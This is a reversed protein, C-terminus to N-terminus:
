VQSPPSLTEALLLSLHFQVASDQVIKPRVQRLIQDCIPHHDCCDSRWAHCGLLATRKGSPRESVLASSLRITQSDPRSFLTSPRDTSINIPIICRGYRYSLHMLSTFFNYSYFRTLYIRILISNILSLITFFNSLSHSLSLFSSSLQYPCSLIVPGVYCSGGAETYFLMTFFTLFSCALVANKGERPTRRPRVHHLFYPLLLCTRRENRGLTNKVRM